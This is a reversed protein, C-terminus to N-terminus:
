LKKLEREMLREIEEAEKPDYVFDLQLIPNSYYARILSETDAQEVLPILRSNPGLENIIATIFNKKYQEHRGQDAYSLAQRELNETFTKWNKEKITNVTNPRPRLNAEDITRLTGKEASPQYKNIEARRRANISRFTNDIEKKEWNTITVDQKTTYPLEAGKRLYRSMKGIYRNFTARDYEKLFDQLEKSVIRQPQISAIEPKARSVRTIKANFRRVLNEVRKSDIDRWKTQNSRAM